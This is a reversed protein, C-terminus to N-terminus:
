SLVLARPRLVNTRRCGRFSRYPNVIILQVRRLSKGPADRREFSRGPPAKVLLPSVLSRSKVPIDSEEQVNQGISLAIIQLTQIWHSHHRQQPVCMQGVVAAPFCLCSSLVDREGVRVGSLRRTLEGSRCARVPPDSRCCPPILVRRQSGLASCPEQNASIRRLVPDVRCCSPWWRCSAMSCRSRTLVSPISVLVGRQPLHISLHQTLDKTKPSIPLRQFSLCIPPMAPPMKSM